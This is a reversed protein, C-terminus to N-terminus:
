AAKKSQVYELLAARVVASKSTLQSAAQKTFYENLESPLQLAIRERKTQARQKKMDDTQQM